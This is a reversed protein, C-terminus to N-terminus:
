RKQSAEPDEIYNKRGGRGKPVGTGEIQHTDHQSMKGPVEPDEVQQAPDEMRDNSRIHLRLSGVQQTDRLEKKWPAEPEEVQQKDHLWNKRQQRM